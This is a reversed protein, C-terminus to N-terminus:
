LKILLRPLPLQGDLGHFLEHIGVQHLLISEFTEDNLPGGGDNVTDFGVHELINVVFHCQKRLHQLVLTVLLEPIYLQM